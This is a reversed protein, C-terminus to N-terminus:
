VRPPASNTHLAFRLSWFIQISMLTLGVSIAALKVLLPAPSRFVSQIAKWRLRIFESRFISAQNRQFSRSRVVGALRKRHATLQCLSRSRHFVTAEPCFITQFESKAFRISWEKDGGSFATEDFDGIVELCTRWVFMNATAVHKKSRLDEEVDFSFAEQYLRTGQSIDRQHFFKIDGAVRDAGKLLCNVGAPLWAPSPLCDADTFALVKSRAVRLATNRAAYSGPKFESLLKVDFRCSPLKPTESSGNDVVIVELLHLPYTTENLSFLLNRLQEAM